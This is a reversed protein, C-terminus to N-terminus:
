NSLIASIMWTCTRCWRQLIAEVLFKVFKDLLHGWPSSCHWSCICFSLHMRLWLVLMSIRPMPRKLYSLAELCGSFISSLVFLLSSSFFGDFISFFSSGFNQTYSSHLYVPASSSLLNDTGVEHACVTWPKREAYKLHKFLAKGRWNIYISIYVLLIPM